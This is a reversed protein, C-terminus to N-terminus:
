RRKKGAPKRGSPPGMLSGFTESLWDEVGASDALSESLPRYVLNAYKGSGELTGLVALGRRNTWLLKGESDWLKFVVSAAAVEGSYRTRTLGHHGGSGEGRISQDFGDWSAIGHDVGAMAQDIEVQLVANVRTEAAIVQVLGAQGGLYKAMNFEGTNPDFAELTSTAFSTTTRKRIEDALVPPAVYWGFNASLYQTVADFFKDAEPVHSEPLLIVKHVASRIQEAPVYLKDFSSDPKDAKPDKPRKERAM